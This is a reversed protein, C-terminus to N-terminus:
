RELKLACNRNLAAGSECGDNHGHNSCPCQRDVHGHGNDDPCVNARRHCVSQHRHRLDIVLVCEPVCNLISTLLFEKEHYPLLVHPNLKIYQFASFTNSLFSTM